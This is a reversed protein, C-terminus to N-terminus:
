MVKLLFLFVLLDKSVQVAPCVNDPSDTSVTVNCPLITPIGLGLVFKSSITFTDGPLISSITGSNPGSLIIGGAFGFEWQVDTCIGTGNNKIVANVTTTSPSNFLGGYVSEIELCCEEPPYEEGTIVFSFDIGDIIIWDLVGPDESWVAHDMFYDWSNKWGIVNQESFPMQIILWYIEGQEQVFPDDIDIINIQFYLQHNHPFTEYWPMMWGQDGTWPGAIIFDPPYFTREWLEDLPVSWENPGQPNNSWISIKISPIDMVQDMWWSIWFHIDTVPGSEICQWDDGMNWWGFDIDWGDPVPMQPYHMKYGDGPQWDAITIVSTLILLMVVLPVLWIKHKM